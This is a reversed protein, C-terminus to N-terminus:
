FGLNKVQFILFFMKPRPARDEELGRGNPVWGVTGSSGRARKDRVRGYISRKLFIPGLRTHYCKLAVHDLGRGSVKYM